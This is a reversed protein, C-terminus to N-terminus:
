SKNMYGADERPMNVDGKGFVHPIDGSKLCNMNFLGFAEENGHLSILLINLKGDLGISCALLLYSEDFCIIPRDLKGQEPSIGRALGM